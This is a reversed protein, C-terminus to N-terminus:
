PSRDAQNSIWVCQYPQLEVTDALSTYDQGSILDRWTDTLVLNLEALAISQCSDSINNVVFISQRRDSSQRWFGFVQDGLHLTFQTANPHFAPQRARIRILRKMAEFVEAHPSHPDALAHALADADWRYRNISRAHGSTAVGVVDNRTALLSHVYIAPIGELALMISHACLFRAIGWQDAGAVTGQLADFLAINIEYPKRDGHELARWSVHGGFSEATRIMADVEADSLLGEVPRLGIGDHSAIFNFYTTGHQAPPMSMLWRKLYRCDGTWLTNLLLPPLSFNYVLHAENSNGFYSLNERNPINTETIIIAQSDYHEILTRLLRVVEHTELLNLSPSDERKWLFAVADLRFIQVGEDMHRRIIRVFELLVEPNQFNLDIQDHSFTCWVRRLGQATETERLLPSTRPRVVQRLDAAEHMEVFYDRGPDRGVCYNLFWPHVSSCHNIVLDSMLRREAALAKIDDWTGLEPRVALYDSVAFGDDSSYPFYPLVHVGNIDEHLHDRLFQRLTQLGAEGERRISDGYSIMWIDGQDWCNQFQPPLPANESLGMIEIMQRALVTPEHEPYLVSLHNQLRLLLESRAHEMLM